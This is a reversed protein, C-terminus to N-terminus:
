DEPATVCRVDDDFVVLEGNAPKARSRHHLPSYAPRSETTRTGAAMALHDLSGGM